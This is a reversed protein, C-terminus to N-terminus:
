RRWIGARRSRRRSRRLLLRRPRTWTVPPTWTVTKTEGVFCVNKKRPFTTTTSNSSNGTWNGNKRRCSRSPRSTETSSRSPRAPRSSPPSATAGTECPTPRPAGGRRPRTADACRTPWKGSRGESTRRKPFHAVGTGPTAWGFGRTCRRGGGRGCRRGTRRKKKKKELLCRRRCRCMAAGKSCLPMAPSTAKTPPGRWWGRRCCRGGGSGTVCPAGRRM